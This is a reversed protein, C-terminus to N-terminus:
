FHFNKVSSIIRSNQAARNQREANKVPKMESMLSSLEKWLKVGIADLHKPAAALESTPDSVTPIAERKKSPFGDLEKDAYSRNM